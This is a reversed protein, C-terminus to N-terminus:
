FSHDITYEVSIESVTVSVLHFNKLQSKVNQDAPINYVHICTYVLFTGFYFLSQNVASVATYYYSKNNKNASFREACKSKM